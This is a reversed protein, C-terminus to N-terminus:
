VATQNGMKTSEITRALVDDCYQPEPQIYINKGNAVVAKGFLEDPAARTGNADVLEKGEALKLVIDAILELPTFVDEPMAEWAKDPVIPTRVAGPCLANVRIGEHKYYDAVSRMFGMIGFKSATYIPAWYTPWFSSCSANIVISGKAPSLNIYHRAVHVTNICSKLNVELATLDPPPPGDITEHKGFISTNEIVGANAFVFDLRNNGATFAKKFATTVEEYDLLNARHYITNSLSDAAQRGEEDKIDILNIKWGGKAALAQAVALGMGRSGGTIVAVRDPEVTM